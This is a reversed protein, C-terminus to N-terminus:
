KLVEYIIPSMIPNLVHLIDSLNWKRFFTVSNQKPTLVDTSPYAPFKPSPNKSFGILYITRSTTTVRTLQRVEIYKTTTVLNRQITHYQASKVGERLLVGTAPVGRSLLTNEGCTLLAIKSPLGCIRLPLHSQVPSTNRM